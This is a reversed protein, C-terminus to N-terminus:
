NAARLIGDATTADVLRTGDDPSQAVPCHEVELTLLSEEGITVLESCPGHCGARPTTDRGRARRLGVHVSPDGARSPSFSACAALDTRDQLSARDVSLLAEADGQLEGLLHQHDGNV